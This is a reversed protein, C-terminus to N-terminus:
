KPEPPDPEDPFLSIGAKLRSMQIMYKCIEAFGPEDSIRYVAHLGKTGVGEVFLLTGDEDGAEKPNTAPLGWFGARAVIRELEGWEGDNLVISRDLAVRGPEIGCMDDLVVVRLTAGSGTKQIRVGMSHNFSPLILLRYATAGPNGTAVLGLPPEEMAQLVGSYWRLRFRGLQGASGSDLGSFYESPSLPVSWASTVAPIATLATLVASTTVVGPGARGRPRGRRRRMLLAVVGGSTAVMLTVLLQAIGIANATMLNIQELDLTEKRLRPILFLVLRSTLLNRNFGQGGQQIADLPPEWPSGALLFFGWGFVAFGLWFAGEAGRRLRGAVVASLLLIVCFTYTAGLWLDSASRLAAFALGSAVVAVILGLISFRLRGM